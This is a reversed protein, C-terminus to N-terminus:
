SAKRRDMKLQADILERERVQLGPKGGSGYYALHAERDGSLAKRYTGEIDKLEAEITKSADGGPPVISAAPNLERSREALWRWLEPKNGLKRGEADRAGMIENYLDEPMTHALSRAANMNTNYEAQGWAGVLEVTAEQKHTGDAAARDAALKPQMGYYWSLARNFEAQSAFAGHMSKAFDEVLPQDAKGIVLGDPLELAKVYDEPSDPLNASKRYQAIQEPTADKGPPEPVAKLKGSSVQAQLERHSKYLANVDSYKSLDKLAQKDEGALLERWNQPMAAPKAAAAAEAARADDGGGLTDKAGGAAAGAAGAADSGNGGAGAAAGAGSGDEGQVVKEGAAAGAGAAAGGGGAGGGSGDEAAYLPRLAIGALLRMRFM